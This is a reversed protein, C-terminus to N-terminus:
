CFIKGFFDFDKSFGDGIRILLERIMLVSEVEEDLEPSTSKQM